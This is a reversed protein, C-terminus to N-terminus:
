RKARIEYDVPNYLLRYHKSRRLWVSMTPSKVIGMSYGFYQQRRRCIYDPSGPYVKLLIAKSTLYM